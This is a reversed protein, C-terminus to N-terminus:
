RDLGQMKDKGEKKQKMIKKLEEIRPANKELLAMQNDTINLTRFRFKRGKFLIGNVKNRYTYLEFGAELIRRFFDDRSTSDLYCEQLKKSVVEKQSPKGTRRKVQYEKDSVKAHDVELLRSKQWRNLYVISQSLEPYHDNQYQEMDMRIQRFEKNGLRLGKSSHFENASFMFHMHVNENNIHPKVLCLADKGRLEIFKHAIDELTELSLQQKNEKSFSLIEHFLVVGNKRKRRYQDNEEFQQVVGNLDSKHLNHYITFTENEDSRGKDSLIYNALYRFKRRRHKSSKIIM